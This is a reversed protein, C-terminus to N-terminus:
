ENHGGAHLPLFKRLLSNTNATPSTAGISAVEKGGVKIQSLILAPDAPYNRVFELTMATWGNWRGAPDKVELSAGGSDDAYIQYSAGNASFYRMIDALRLCCAYSSGDDTIVIPQRAVIDAQEAYYKGEAEAEADEDNLEGVPEMQTTENPIAQAPSGVPRKRARQEAGEKSDSAAYAECNFGEETPWFNDFHWSQSKFIYWASVRTIPMPEGWQNYDTVTLCAMRADNKDRYILADSIEVKAPNVARARIINELARQDGSSCATAALLLIHPIRAVCDRFAGGVSLLTLRQRFISLM